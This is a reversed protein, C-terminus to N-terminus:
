SVHLSPIEDIVYRTLILINLTGNNFVLVYMPLNYDSAWRKFFTYSATIISNSSLEIRNKFRYVSKHLLEAFSPIGRSVFM